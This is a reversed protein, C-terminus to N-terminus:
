KEKMFAWRVNISGLLLLVALTFAGLAFWEDHARLQGSIWEASFRPASSPGFHTVNAADWLAARGDLESWLESRALRKAARAFDAGDPATFLAV